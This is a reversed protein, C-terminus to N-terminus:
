GLGKRYKNWSSIEELSKRNKARVPAESYGLSVILPVRRKKDIGLIEKLRKEDFWGIICTGLGLETAQLCFQNVAIGTDYHCFEKDKLMGGVSSLINEKELVIVVLVPAQYTFKNMGLSASCGAVQDRLGPDDVVIFKWPQSNNASPSLRAAELCRIIKEKEVPRALYSRASQHQKILEAFSM